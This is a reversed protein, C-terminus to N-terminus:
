AMGSRARRAEDLVSRVKQVLEGQTYPKSLLNVNADLRDQHVIANRSYGTTFLVPLEPRKGRAADALQRGTMEKTMVVDTFLLDIRAGDELFTMAEPGDKAVLVSYGFDELTHCAFDLVGENDEVVLVTEPGRATAVPKPEPEAPKPVSAMQAQPLRPLYIKVTTGHGVESYIRIHGGSQKVFGHVMSLGLGTGAGPQKTTFFPEFVRELVEPPIGTGTDTVSLVAYQGPPIDGFSAAYGEDLHANATEITIKGGDPMADKANIALNVLVNELQNADALTLWLGAGLVTEITVPTGATRTLLDSVGAICKNLDLPVPDLPQMRSFALLRHTLKAANKAGAMAADLPRVLPAAEAAMAELRRRITDLNGMIITLLNNFDHAVGGTLQGVAEMKQSQRLSAEATERRAAEERLNKLLRAQLRIAAASLFWAGALGSLILFLLLSRDRREQREQVTLVDKEAQSIEGILSRIEDMVEKGPLALESAEERKGARLLSLIEEIVALKSHILPRLRALAKQQQPNGLTLKLLKQLSPQIQASATRYPALFDEQGTLMYGREGAEADQIQSLLNGAALRVELTHSVLNSTDSMRFFMAVAAVGAAFVLAAPIMLM